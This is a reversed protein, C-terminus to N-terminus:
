YLFVAKSQKDKEDDQGGLTSIQQVNSNNKTKPKM